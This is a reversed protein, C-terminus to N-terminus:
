RYQQSKSDFGAINSAKELFARRKQIEKEDLKPNEKHKQFAKEYSGTQKRIHSPDIEYFVPIVERKKKTELIHTLERLCWTSSAYKESFVVICLYSNDIAHVLAPWVEDGKELTTDDKYTQIQKRSLAAFLHSTFNRRTDEGRFSIFVDYLNKSPSASSSCSAAGAMEILSYDAIKFTTILFYLVAKKKM